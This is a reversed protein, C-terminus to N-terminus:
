ADSRYYLTDGGDVGFDLATTGVTAYDGSDAVNNDISIRHDADAVVRIVSTQPQLTISEATTTTSADPTRKMGKLKPVPANTEGEGGVYDYEEITITGM